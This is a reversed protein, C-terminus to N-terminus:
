SQLFAISRNLNSVMVRIQLLCQVKEASLTTDTTYKWIKLVRHNKTHTKQEVRFFLRTNVPQSEM